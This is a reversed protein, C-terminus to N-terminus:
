VNDESEKEAKYPDPLPQWAIVSAYEFFESGLCGLTTKDFQEQWIGFQECGSDYSGIFPYEEEDEYVKGWLLYDGEEEPLRESCPIWRTRELAKGYRAGCERCKDVFDQVTRDRHIPTGPMAYREMKELYQVRKTLAENIERLSSLDPTVSELEEVDEIEICRHKYHELGKVKSFDLDRALNLVAKRSVADECPKQELKRALEDVKRTNWRVRELWKRFEERDELICKATDKDGFYEVLDQYREEAISEQELAGIAMKLAEEIAKNLPTGYGVKDSTDCAVMVNARLLVIAQEREEREERTM